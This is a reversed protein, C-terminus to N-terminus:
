LNQNKLIEAAQDPTIEGRSLRDLTQLRQEKLEESSPTATLGLRSIVAELRSKVTPYSIGLEKEVEKISGRCKLFTLVFRAEEDTLGCFDCGTFHGSLESGCQTCTCRTIEYPGSCVPCSAPMQRRM